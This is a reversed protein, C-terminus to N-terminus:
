PGAAPTGSSPEQFSISACASRILQVYGTLFRCFRRYRTARATGGPFGHVTLDASHSALQRLTVASRWDGTPPIQWSMLRRNEDEDLDLLGRDVLRLM